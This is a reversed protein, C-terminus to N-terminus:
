ESEPTGRKEQLAAKRNVSSQRMQLAQVAASTAVDTTDVGATTESEKKNSDTSVVPSNEEGKGRWASPLAGM